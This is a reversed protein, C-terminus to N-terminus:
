VGDLLRLREDSGFEFWDSSRVRAVPIGDPSATVNLAEEYLRGLATTEGLALLYKPARETYPLLRFGTGTSPIIVQMLEGGSDRGALDQFNTRKRVGGILLGATPGRIHIVWTSTGYSDKSTPSLARAPRCRWSAFRIVKQGDSCNQLDAVLRSMLTGMGQWELASVAALDEKHERTTVAIHNLFLPDPFAIAPALGGTDLEIQPAACIICDM